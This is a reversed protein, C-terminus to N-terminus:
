WLSGCVLCIDSEDPYQSNDLDIYAFGTPSSIDNLNNIEVDFVCLVM